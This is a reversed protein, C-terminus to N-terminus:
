IIRAKGADVLNNVPIFITGSMTKSIGFCPFSDKDNGIDFSDGKKLAVKFGDEATSDLPYMDIDQTLVVKPPAKETM